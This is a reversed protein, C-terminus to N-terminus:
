VRRICLTLKPLRNIIKAPNITAMAIVQDLTFGMGLFKSM